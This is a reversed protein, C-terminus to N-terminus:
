TSPANWADQQGPSCGMPSHSCMRGRIRSVRRERPFWFAGMSSVKKKTAAGKGAETNVGGCFLFLENPLPETQPIETQGGAATAGAVGAGGGEDGGRLVADVVGGVCEVLDARLRGPARRLCRRGAGPPDKVWEPPFPKVSFVLAEPNVQEM